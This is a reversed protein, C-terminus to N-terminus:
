EAQGARNTKRLLDSIEHSSENEKQAQVSSEVAPISSSEIKPM